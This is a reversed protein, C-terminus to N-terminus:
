RLATRSHVDRCEVARCAPASSVATRSSPTEACWYQRFRGLCVADAERRGALGIARPRGDFAGGWRTRNRRVHLLEPTTLAGIDGVGVGSSVSLTPLFMPDVAPGLMQLTAGGLRNVKASVSLIHGCPFASILCSSFFLLSLSSSAFLCPIYALYLVVRKSRAREAQWGRRACGYPWPGPSSLM